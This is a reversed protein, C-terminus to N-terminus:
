WRLRRGSQIPPIFWSTTRGASESGGGITFAPSGLRRTSSSLRASRRLWSLIMSSLIMFFTPIIRDRCRVYSADLLANLDRGSGCGIDLVRSDPTFAAPFHRAPASGAELYRQALEAAHGAYFQVTRPDMRHPLSYRFPFVSPSAPFRSRRADFM